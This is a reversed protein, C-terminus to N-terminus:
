LPRKENNLSCISSSNDTQNWGNHIVESGVIKSSPALITDISAIKKRRSVTDFLSKIGTFFFIELPPSMIPTSRCLNM